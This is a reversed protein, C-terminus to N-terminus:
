TCISSTRMKPNYVLIIFCGKSQYYQFVACIYFWLLSISFKNLNKVSKCHLFTTSQPTTM